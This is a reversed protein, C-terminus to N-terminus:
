LDDREKERKKRFRNGECFGRARTKEVVMRDDHSLLVIKRRGVMRGDQGLPPVDAPSGIGKKERTKETPKGHFASCKSMRCFISIDRAVYFEGRGEFIRRFREQSETIRGKPAKIEVWCVWETGDPLTKTVLKDPVSGVQAYDHVQFGAKRLAETIIKDNSDRRAAYRM